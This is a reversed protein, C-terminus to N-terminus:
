RLAPVADVNPPSGTRYRGATARRLKVTFAYTDRANRKGVQWAILRTNREIGIFCYADGCDFERPM